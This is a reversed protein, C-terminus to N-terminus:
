PTTLALDDFWFTGSGSSRVGIEVWATGAPAVYTTSMSTWSGTGPYILDTNTGLLVWNADYSAVTVYGGSTASREWGAITYTQGATVAVVQWTGQWPGTAVLRLSGSGTHADAPNTDIAAQPALYWSSTGSEFGANTMLNVSSTTTTFTADTSSARQGSGDVSTVQFHYTTSSTLGSLTLSHSTVSGGNAIAGGYSTTVGYDVRSNALNNTQWTIVASTASVNSVQVATVQLAPPPPPPSLTTFTADTSSARQGFGDVSTVQFHYTTSSTLGSLTLSHSTVSSSNAVSGGYSTTVGYDVRSDAVNNTHWTIVASSASVNGVQVATVQLAPPPPPPGTSLSLDDFWFTGSRSSRVGIEAWAAGAPAVYNTSMSTWSGTGPYILDTNTGLFAWNADYSAVTLYGGSIASREWGAITYAQGSTVAVAQWTGQWPGTAVLQLSGSGTHADAPNTDIAAQPALYWSTTGSEFGANTMLNVSAAATTFSADTSSARQGSGDASTVQFHYTTSSTLGSLTLSHSTVSASDAVASGYSTTPGFDVRSDALNNTQWTIVAANAVVNSVQVSTVQLSPPPPPATGLFADLVNSTTRQIRTDAVSQDFNDLGLSWSNTGAAFVWAKSPAQYISSNSYDAVGQFDRYPSRSLLTRGTSTPLPFDPMYRDMEYGVIGPVVDGDHFGTGAYVWHSSNTVTYGVNNGWNVLSTSQIGVLGQEPRNLPAARWQVTTTPGQVPDISADKYCVMVRNATGGASPEFRVQWFAANSGFFGLSVGGDRAAVAADFMERSWYEDHGVSLFGKSNLLAAGSTHTDLDTSYTVDYGSRELWRVFEIEFFFFQGTGAGSYPRDFSVKVARPDGAVTNAGYSNYTYLSKGTVGDDPYNNYAEYTTVSQQYLLPAPRGDRVVFIVHNQYGQANTLVVLYVGSVWDAGVTLTYSPTWNCAILGTTPAPLCAQQHVGNLPGAHLRLRAGLGAYWGVRYVDLTYTQVPNVTVYLNISQNPSASTTSAYGKIQNTVDDAVLSGLQWGWSGSLQNETVIPNSAALVTLAPAVVALVVSLLVLHGIWVRAVHL